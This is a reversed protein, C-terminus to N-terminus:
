ANTVDRPSNQLGSAKEEYSSTREYLSSDRFRQKRLFGRSQLLTRISIHEEGNPFDEILVFDCSFQAWDIGRLIREDEGECDISLLNVRAFKPFKSIIDRLTVSVNQHERVIPNGQSQWYRANQLSVTSLASNRFEFYTSPHAGDSVIAVLSCDRKRRRGLNRISTASADINLGSWGHDYLTKTVSYRYPHHAGIDIYTGEAPLCDELAIDEGNQAWSIRPEGGRLIGETVNVLKQLQSRIGGSSASRIFLVTLLLILHAM